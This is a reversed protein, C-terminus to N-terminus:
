GYIYKEMATKLKSVAKANIQSVRQVSIELVESIDSLTLNEYYYLTVVTKERDTLENIANKLVERMEQKILKKEPSLDESGEGELASGMQSMNQILEEFSFVVSNNIESSCAELKEVPIAMFESLEEITPERMLKNSLEMQAEAIRKSMERVRRPIWDQKRVLDIIGGRVRMFAYYEFKIGKDADFKDISDMLTLIGQNVMDDIQAYGQCLGRLQVAVTQPIYSFNLVIKNRANIDGTKKYKEFLSLFEEETLKKQESTLNM